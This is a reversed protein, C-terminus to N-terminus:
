GSSRPSCSSPARRDALGARGGAAGRHQHSLRHVIGRVAQEMQTRGELDNDLVSVCLPRLEEVMQERLVRLAKTTYSTVLVRKGQAVLHGVLNAITHSKGTGPPGQVLVARHRELARVIEIQEANAPKSLLLDQRERRQGAGTWDGPPPEVGVIRTLAPPCSPRRRELDELVRDFAAAFGAARDRALLWADRVIM